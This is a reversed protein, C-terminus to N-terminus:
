TGALIAAWTQRFIEFWEGKSLDDYRVGDVGPAQGNRASMKLLVAWLNGQQPVEKLEARIARHEARYRGGRCSRTTRRCDYQNWSSLM